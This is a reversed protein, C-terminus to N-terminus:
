WEYHYPKRSRKKEQQQFKKIGWHYKFFIISESIESNNSTKTLVKKKMKFQEPM